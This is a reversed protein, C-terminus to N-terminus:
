FSLAADIVLASSSHEGRRSGLERTFFAANVDLAIFRFGAGLTLHGQNIGARAKLFSLLKVETGAHLMTLISREERLPATIDQIDIYFAPDIFIGAVGLDPHFSAGANIEMPIQSQADIAGGEPFRGQLVRGFDDGFTGRTYNFRTGGLDRVNIGISFPSIDAIIGMDIALGVGHYSTESNLATLIDGGDALTTLMNTIGSSEIPSHIRVMPRVDGGISVKMGIFNLSFSLGGIFAFTAVVDGSASTIDSGHFYSDLVGLFGLGLGRGAYGIGSAAGWGFGESTIQEGLINLSGKLGSNSISSALPLAKHPEIYAWSGASAITVTGKESSFGAPNTFLSNYGEPSSVYAGGRGMIASSYYKFPIGSIDLAGINFQPIAFFYLLIALITPYLSRM